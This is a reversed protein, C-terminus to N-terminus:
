DMIAATSGKASIIAFPEKIHCKEHSFTTTTQLFASLQVECVSCIEWYQQTYEPSQALWSFSTYQAPRFIELEFLLILVM